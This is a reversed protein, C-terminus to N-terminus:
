PCSLLLFDLVCLLGSHLRKLFSIYDKSLSVLDGGPVVRLGIGLVLWSFWPM